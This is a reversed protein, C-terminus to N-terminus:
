VVLEQRSEYTFKFGQKEFEESFETVWDSVKESPQRGVSAYSVSNQPDLRDEFFIAESFGFDRMYSAVKKASSDPVDYYRPGFSDLLLLRSPSDTMPNSLRSHSHTEPSPSRISSDRDSNPSTDSELDGFLEEWLFSFSTGYVSFRPFHDKFPIVYMSSPDYNYPTLDIFEKVSQGCKSFFPEIDERACQVSGRLILSHLLRPVVWEVGQGFVHNPYLTSDAFNLDLYRLSHFTPGRKSFYGAFDRWKLDSLSLHTLQSNHSVYTTFTTEYRPHMTLSFAKLGPMLGLFHMLDIDPDSIALIRVESFQRKLTEDDLTTWPPEESRQQPDLPLPSFAFSRGCFYLGLYPDRNVTKLRKIRTLAMARRRPLNIAHFDSLVCRDLPPALMAAWARCVLRLNKVNDDAIKM